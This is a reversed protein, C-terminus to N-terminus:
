NSANGFGSKVRHFLVWILFPSRRKTRRRLVAATSSKVGDTSSFLRISVSILSFPSRQSLSTPPCPQTPQWKEPGGGRLDEAHPPASTSAHTPFNVAQYVCPSVFIASEPGDRDELGEAPPQAKFKQRCLFRRFESTPFRM